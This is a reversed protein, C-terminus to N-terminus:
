ITAFDADTQRELHLVSQMPLCNFHKNIYQIILWLTDHRYKKQLKKKVAKKLQTSNLKKEEKESHHSQHQQKKKVILLLSLTKKESSRSHNNDVSFRGSLWGITGNAKSKKKMKGEM